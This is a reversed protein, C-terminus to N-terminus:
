QPSLSIYTQIQTLIARVVDTMIAITMIMMFTIIMFMIIVM